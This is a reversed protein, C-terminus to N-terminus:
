VEQIFEILIKDPGYIFMCYMGFAHFPEMVFAVNKEKFYAHVADLDPVKFALHKNGIVMNDTNPLLREEPLPQPKEPEFIELEFGKGNEMFAAKFGMPTMESKSRLRFNLIEEFWAIAADMDRVSVALHLPEYILEEIKM